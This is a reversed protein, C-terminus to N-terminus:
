KKARILWHWGLKRELTRFMKRPMHRFWPQIVYRHQRYDKVVFPFIHDQRMELIRFGRMLVQIDSESYTHAIPCGAQAEPQDLGAEIMIAKWSNKAYLMLRFESRPGMYKRAEAVIKEPRPAHHIVGFSYILDFKQRPLFSTLEEANGLYFRGKLGLLKFKKKALDLSKKSLEVGTYDAGAKAFSAAATGIGCGIELVRKGKWKHFESFGIIHPEVRYKRKEVQEFYRRTGVPATGHRINCPRRNWYSKVTGLAKNKM